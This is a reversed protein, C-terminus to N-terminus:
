MLPTERTGRKRLKWTTSARRSARCPSGSSTTWSRSPGPERAARSCVKYGGPRIMTLSSLIASMHAKYSTHVLTPETLTPLPFELYVKHMGGKESAEFGFHLIRAKAISADIAELFSAPARLKKCLEIVKRRYDEGLTTKNLTILFRNALLFEECMKFSYEYGHPVGLGRVLDHLLKGGVMEEDDFRERVDENKRVTEALVRALRKVMHPNVVIRAVIPAPEANSIDGTEGSDCFELTIEPRNVLVDVRDARCTRGESTNWVTKM